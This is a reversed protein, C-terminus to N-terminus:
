SSGRSFSVVVWELIRSQSIEHVSPDPPNCDIPYFLHVHSLSQVVVFRAEVLCRTLFEM